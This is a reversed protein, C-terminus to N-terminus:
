DGTILSTGSDIVLKCPYDPTCIETDEDGILIQQASISWFIPESVSHWHLEGDYLSHDIGGFILKSELSRATRDM